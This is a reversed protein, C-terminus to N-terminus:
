DDVPSWVPVQNDAPDGKIVVIRNGRSDIIKEGGIRVDGVDMDEIQMEDPGVFGTELYWYGNKRVIVVQDGVNPWKFVTPIDTVAVQIVAADKAVVELRRTTPDCTVVRAALREVMAGRYHSSIPM